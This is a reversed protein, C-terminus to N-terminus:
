KPPRNLLPRVSAENGRATYWNKRLPPDVAQTTPRCGPRNLSVCVVSLSALRRPGPPSDGVEDAMLVVPPPKWKMASSGISTIGIATVIVLTRLLLAVNSTM